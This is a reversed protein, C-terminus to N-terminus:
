LDREQAAHSWDIFKKILAGSLPLSLIMSWFGQGPAILEVCIFCILITTSVAFGSLVVLLDSILKWLM